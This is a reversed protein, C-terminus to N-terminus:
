HAEAKVVKVGVIGFALRALLPLALVCIVTPLVIRGLMGGFGGLVARLVGWLVLYFVLLDILGIVQRVGGGGKVDVSMGGLYLSTVMWFVCVTALWELM